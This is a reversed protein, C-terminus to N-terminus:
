SQSRRSLFAVLFALLGLGGWVVMGLLQSRGLTARLFWAVTLALAGSTALVILLFRFLNQKRRAWVFGGLLGVAGPIGLVVALFLATLDGASIILRTEQVTKPTIAMLEERELLWNVASMFLDLSGGTLGANSVFDSDGFVVLRTPRIQVDIGPVPGKEVAAAVPVPGPLDTLPDFNLAGDRQESEAWGSVSSSALVSVRPKDVLDVPQAGTEQAAVSRPM